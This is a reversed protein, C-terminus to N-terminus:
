VTSSSTSSVRGNATANVATINTVSSAALSFPKFGRTAYYGDLLINASADTNYQIGQFSTGDYDFTVFRFTAAGIGFSSRQNTTYASSVCVRLFIPIHGAGTNGRSAIVDGFFGSFNVNGSSRHYSLGVVPRAYDGYQALILPSMKRWLAYSQNTQSDLTLQGEYDLTALVRGSGYLNIPINNHAYIGFETDTNYILARDNGSTRMRIQSGTSDDITLSTYGASNYPNNTGLGLDGATNLVLSNSPASGNLNVAPSAVSGGGVLAFTGGSNIRLRERVTSDSDQRTGFTLATNKSGSSENFSSITAQGTQATGGSLSQFQLTAHGAAGNNLIVANSNNTTAAADYATTTSRTSTLRGDSAIRLSESLAGGSRLRFDGGDTFQIAGRNTDRASNQFMVNANETIVVNGTTSNFSAATVIGTVNVRSVDEYTVTGPMTMTGDIAKITDTQGNIQIGM